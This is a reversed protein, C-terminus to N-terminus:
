QMGGFPRSGVDRVLPFVNRPKVGLIKAAKSPTLDGDDMQQRVFGVLAKGLRHRRVIYYSPGASDNERAEARARLRQRRWLDRFRTRLGFWDERSIRGSAFMRYAVMSYSLNKPRAFREIESVLGEIGVEPSVNITVLDTAPLLIESAVDNCFKEIASENNTGSIGTQGLWLHTLEHLLTFSWAAKSDQDNIVVFPAVPDALAFGRFIEPELATHHSGLNGILLVFVGEKEVAERLAAFANEPSNQGRFNVQEFAIKTKIDDAVRSVGDRMAMSDIFPLATTDDDDLASRVMQQRARVDRLLADVLADSSQDRGEPLARFDHGRDGRHPPEALYFSLLPRRYQKAMKLLLPRTPEVQGSELAQLRHVATIQRNDRIGIKRAADEPSLGATERAWALIAPNVRPMCEINRERLRWDQSYWDAVPVFSCGLRIRSRRM